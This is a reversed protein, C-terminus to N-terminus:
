TGPCCHKMQQSYGVVWSWSVALDATAWRQRSYSASWPASSAAASSSSPATLLRWIFCLLFVVTGCWVLLPSSCLWAFGCTHLQAPRALTNPAVTCSQIYELHWKVFIVDSSCTVWCGNALCSNLWIYINRTFWLIFGIKKTMEHDLAAMVVSTLSLTQIRNTIILCM